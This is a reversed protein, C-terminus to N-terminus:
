GQGKDTIPAGYGLYPPFAPPKISAGEAAHNWGNQMRRFARYLRKEARRTGLAYRM